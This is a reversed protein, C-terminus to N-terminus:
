QLIKITFVTYKNPISEFEVTGNNMEIMQKAIVLGLGTGSVETTNSARFFSSFINKQEKAPIGIGYDRFLIEVEKAKFHIEAEPNQKEPSYKFANSILNTFINR